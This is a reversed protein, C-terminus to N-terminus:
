NAYAEFLDQHGPPRAVFGPDSSPLTLLSQIVLSPVELKRVQALNNAQASMCLFATLGNGEEFGPLHTIESPFVADTERLTNTVSVSASFGIETGQSVSESGGHSGGFWNSSWNRESTKGRSFGINMGSTRSFQTEMVEGRGIAKSAWEASESGLRLFLKHACTATLEHAEHEGFAHKMGAFDQFGLATCVGRSRGKNILDTLGQVRGLERVEDLVLWTRNMAEWQGDAVHDLTLEALRKIFLLNISKLAASYTQNAGLLVVQDHQTLFRRISFVPTGSRKATRWCAAVPLLEFLHSTLEALINERQVQNNLLNQSLVVYPNYPDKEFLSVLTEIQVCAALVDALDWDRPRSRVFVSIV